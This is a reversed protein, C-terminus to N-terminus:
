WLQIFSKVKRWTPQSNYRDLDLIEEENLPRRGSQLDATRPDRMKTRCIIKYGVGSLVVLILGIVYEFFAYASPTNSGIPYLGLYIACGIYLSCCMLLWIPPLPWLSCKWAYVQQFLPDNQAKIAARYRFNTIAIVAWVMFYGTSAINSLWNFVTIGGASLNCYTLAIAGACTIAIAWRPRGRSDVRAVWDPILHQRSMSRLMRSGVFISEAGISAVAFLIVVNLFEPLGKIGAENLAIVFPSQAIGSGGFLHENDPSVLLGIFIICVLYVVTVRIPILFAAHGVSYRPSKAEGALFGTFTNDGIALVALLVSNGFGKFGNQFAGNQWTEGHHVYGKPGAGLVMAFGAIMFVFLAIVKLIATGYEFWAFYRSPLSFILLMVVLFVTYWVVDNINNEWYNVITAFFVAEAAVIATWGLWMSIGAAFALAPDVFRDAYEIFNGSVPFAITMESVTQLVAFVCSCVVAFALFIGAPGGDRLNKGTSIFLGAGIQGGLSIMHIQRASINRHYLGYQAQGDENVDIREATGVAVDHDSSAPSSKIDPNNKDM